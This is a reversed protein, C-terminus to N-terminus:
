LALRAPRLWRMGGDGGIADAVIKGTAPTLLIGNRFHGTAIILNAVQSSRGIAPLGDPFKPRFGIWSEAVPYKALGPALDLAAERLNAMTAKSVESDFGAVEMTAGFVIGSGPRPALYVGHTHIVHRLLGDPCDFRAVQGKIPVIPARLGFVAGAEESWAGTALVVQGPSLRNNKSSVISAIRGGVIESSTPAGEIFEIAAERARSLLEGHLRRPDILAGPIWLAGSSAGGVLTPEETMLEDRGLRRCEALTSALAEVRAVRDCGGPLIPTLTGAVDLPADIRFRRLFEPYYELSEVCLRFLPSDEEFEAFPVLMGAAARSAVGPLNGSDMVAIRFNPFREAAHLACSLGISGGGVILLDISRM